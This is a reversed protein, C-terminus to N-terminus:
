LSSNRAIGLESQRVSARARRDDSEISYRDRRVSFGALWRSKALKTRAHRVLWQVGKGQRECSCISAAAQLVDMKAGATVKHRVRPLTVGDAPAISM